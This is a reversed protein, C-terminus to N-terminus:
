YSENYPFLARQAELISGIIKDEMTFVANVFQPIYNKKQRKTDNIGNEQIKLQRKLDKKDSMEISISQRKVSAISKKKKVQNDNM